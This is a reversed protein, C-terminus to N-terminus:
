WQPYILIIYRLPRIVYRTVVLHKKSGLWAFDSIYDTHHSYTRIANAESASPRSDWLKIVGDDDGTAFMNMTDGLTIIRSIPVRLHGCSLRADNSLATLFVYGVLSILLSHTPRM